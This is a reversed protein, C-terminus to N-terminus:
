TKVRRKYIFLSLLGLSFIGMSICLSYLILKFISLKYENFHTDVNLKENCVFRPKVSKLIFSTLAFIVGLIVLYIYNIKVAKNTEKITNTDIIGDLKNNFQLLKTHLDDM